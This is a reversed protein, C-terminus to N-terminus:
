RCALEPHTGLKFIGTNSQNYYIRYLSGWHFLFKVLDVFGLDRARPQERLEREYLVSAEQAIWVHRWKLFLLIVEKHHCSPWQTCERLSNM